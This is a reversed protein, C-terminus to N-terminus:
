RINKNLSYYYLSNFYTWVSAKDGTHLAVNKKGLKQQPQLMVGIWLGTLRDPVTSFIYLFHLNFFKEIKANKLM